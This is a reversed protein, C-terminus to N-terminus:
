QSGPIRTVIRAAAIDGTGLGLDEGRHKLRVAEAVDEVEDWPVTVVEDGFLRSSIPRLMRPLRRSFARPGSLIAAVTAKGGPEGEIEIDDVRGCRRGDGDILESDLLRYALEFSHGRM